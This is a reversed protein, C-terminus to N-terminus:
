PESAREFFRDVEVRGPAGLVGERRLCKLAAATSAFRLADGDSRGEALAVALAGHFVDGAATTDLVPAVAFAPMAQVNAGARLWQLGRAGLTVVAVEAGAAVAAALAQSASMTPAFLALGAESFVAWTALPVLRQLDAQPATDGDLVALLGRAKACRLAAEAWAPCRPDTILVDAGDLWEDSFPPASSLASGRHNVILREGHADVIVTSVSSAAGLVRILGLPDIGEDAFRHAFRLAADDDGVPGAFSVTAGLRAAAVCANATMGGMRAAYALAPTKLPQTPLTQVEFMHDMSVHGVGLVRPSKM